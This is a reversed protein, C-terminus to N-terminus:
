ELQEPMSSPQATAVTLTTISKTNNNNSSNNSNSSSTYRSNVINQGKGSHELSHINNINNNNDNTNRWAGPKVPALSEREQLGLGTTTTTTRAATEACESHLDVVHAWQQQQHNEM